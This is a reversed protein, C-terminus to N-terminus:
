KQNLLYIWWWIVGIFLTGCAVAVFAMEFPTYVIPSEEIQQQKQNAAIHTVVAHLTNQTTDKLNVDAELSEITKRRLEAFEEPSTHEPDMSRWHDALEKNKGSSNTLNEFLDEPQNEM